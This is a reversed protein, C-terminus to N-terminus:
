KKLRLITPNDHDRKNIKIKHNFPKKKFVKAAPLKM